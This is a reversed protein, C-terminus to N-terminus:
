KPMYSPYLHREENKIREVLAAGIEELGPLFDSDINASDKSYKSIFALVVKGIDDMEKKMDSIMERSVHDSITEKLYTYLRQNEKLLHGTLLFRFKKLLRKLETVNNSQANKHMEKYLALLARHEKEFTNILNEDYDTLGGKPTEKDKSNTAVEDSSSLFSALTEKLKNLM